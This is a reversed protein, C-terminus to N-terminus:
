DTLEFTKENAGGVEVTMKLDSMQTTMYKQPFGVDMNMSYADASEITESADTAPSLTVVHEGPVVGDNPDFTTLGTVKGQEDTRGVGPRGGATPHFTVIVNSVPQGQYMITANVDATPPNSSCGSVSLTLAVVAALPFFLFQKM